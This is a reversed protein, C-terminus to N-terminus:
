NCSRDTWPADFSGQLNWDPQHVVLTGRAVPAVGDPDLVSDVTLTGAALAAPGGTAAKIEVGVPLRSGEAGSWPPVRLGTAVTVIHRECKGEASVLELWFCRGFSRAGAATFMGLPTTGKVTSPGTGALMPDICAGAGGGADSRSLDVPPPADSGCGGGLGLGLVAAWWGLRRM